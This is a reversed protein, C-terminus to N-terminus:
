VRRPPVTEQALRAHIIWLAAVARLLRTLVILQTQTQVDPHGRLAATYFEVAHALGDHQHILADLLLFDGPRDLLRGGVLVNAAGALVTKTLAEQQPYNPHALEGDLIRVIELERVAVFHWVPRLETLADRRARAPADTRTLDVVVRKALGMRLVESLLRGTRDSNRQSKKSLERTSRDVQDVIVRLQRLLTNPASQPAAAALGGSDINTIARAAILLLVVSAQEFDQWDSAMVEAGDEATASSGGDVAAIQELVDFDLAYTKEGSLVSNERTALLQDVRELLRVAHQRTDAPNPPAGAFARLVTSACELCGSRCRERDDEPAGLIELLGRACVHVTDEVRRLSAVEGTNVAQTSSESLLGSLEQLVVSRLQM